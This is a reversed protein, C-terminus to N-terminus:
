FPAFNNGLPAHMGGGLQNNQGNGSQGSLQQLSSSM